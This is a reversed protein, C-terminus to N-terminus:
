TSTPARRDHFYSAIAPSSLAPLPLERAKSVAAFTPWPEGRVGGEQEREAFPRHPVGAFPICGARRADYAALEQAKSMPPANCIMLTPRLATAELLTTAADVALTWAPFCVSKVRSATSVRSVSPPVGRYVDIRWAYRVKHVRRSGLVLRSSGTLTLALGQVRRAPGQVTALLVERASVQTPAICLPGNMAARPTAKGKTNCSKRTQFSVLLGQWTRRWRIEQM